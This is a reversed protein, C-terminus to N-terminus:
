KKTKRERFRILEGIGPMLVLGTVLLVTLGNNRNDDEAQQCSFIANEPTSTATSDPISTPSPHSSELGLSTRWLAEMGATDFGYVMLLADNYASGQKFEDLLMVIKDKGYEEILFELISYSEAYSLMASSFDSPFSSSLTQVSILSDRSVATDLSAQLDVRLDGEAYMALGEDLWTPIDNYPNFTMQYNVLHAMEHSIAKKGWELDSPRVGIVVTGYETYTAGGLWEQPYIMANLLDASGNYIYVKVSRGLEMGLDSALRELAENAAHLLSEAFSEEGEYWFITIDGETLYQWSYNDDNFQLTQWPTELERNAADEIRWSYQVETGPPLSSLIKKSEWSWSTDVSYAPEIDLHVVSTVNVTTIMVMKYRLFVNTIDSPSEADLNFIIETPFHAVASSYAEIGEEAQVPTPIIAILLLILLFYALFRQTM